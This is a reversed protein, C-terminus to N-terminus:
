RTPPTASGAGDIVKAAQKKRYHRTEQPDFGREEAGMVAWSPTKAMYDSSNFTEGTTMFKQSQEHFKEYDIWTWWEGEVQFQLNFNESM